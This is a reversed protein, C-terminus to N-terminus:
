FARGTWLSENLQAQTKAADVTLTVNNPTFVFVM